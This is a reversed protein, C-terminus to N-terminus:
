LIQPTSFMHWYGICGQLSPPQKEWSPTNTPIWAFLQLLHKAPGLFAAGSSPLSGAADQGRCQDAAPAPLKKPYEGLKWYNTAWPSGPQTKDKKYRRRTSNKEEQKHNRVGSLM